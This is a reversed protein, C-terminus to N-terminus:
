QTSVKGELRFDWGLGNTEEVLQTWGSPENPTSGPECRAQGFALEGQSMLYKSMYTAMGYDDTTEYM